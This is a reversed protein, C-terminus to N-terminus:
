SFKNLQKERIRQKDKDLIKSRNKEITMNQITNSLSIIWSHIFSFYLFAFILLHWGYNEIFRLISQYIEEFISIM